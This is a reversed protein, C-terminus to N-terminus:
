GLIDILHGEVENVTKLAKLSAEYGNRAHILNVVEDSLSVEDIPADVSLPLSALREVAKELKAEARDLGELAKAAVQSLGSM